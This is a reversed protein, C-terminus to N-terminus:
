AGKWSLYEREGSAYRLWYMKCLEHTNRAGLKRKVRAIHTAITNESRHLKAAVEGQTLCENCLMDLVVAEARSLETKM